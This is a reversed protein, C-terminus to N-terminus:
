HCTFPTFAPVLLALKVYVGTLLSWTFHIRVDLAVQVVPLGAVEFITVMVTFVLKGTLTEIRAEALGTQAAVGTVKVAVGAFPPDVGEYWHFTFPTFEPVLLALKV